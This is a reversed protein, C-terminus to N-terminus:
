RQHGKMCEGCVEQPKTGQFDIGKWHKPLQMVSNWNLHGMRQHLVQPTVTVLAKFTEKEICRGRVIYQLKVIDAYGFYTDNWIFKFLQGFPKLRVEIGNKGLLLTRLFNHGLDPCWM